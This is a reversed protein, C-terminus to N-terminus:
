PARAEYTFEYIVGPAPLTGAPLLEISRADIFHWQDAPVVIEPDAERHRVTLRAAPQDLGAPTYSLKFKTMAPGRTQSVFEDRIEQVVDPLAPIHAIMGHNRTPSDPDWGAWVIAYGQRFLFGDGADEATRPDNTDAAPALEDLRNVMLKNGRNLVEFLLHHNGKAPDVPRLIFLDTQYEVKGAANRPARALGVIGANRPDSPDLEGKAVGIVREYAGTMGFTVGPAFPETRDIRLLTVRAAAPSAAALITLATLLVARRTMPKGGITAAIYLM